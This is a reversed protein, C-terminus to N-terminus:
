ENSLDTAFDKMNDYPSISNLTVIAIERTTSKEYDVIIKDLERVQEQSFLQEYDNIYGTPKPFKNEKITKLNNREILPNPLVESQSSVKYSTFVIFLVGLIIKEIKMKQTNHVVNRSHNTRRLFETFKM